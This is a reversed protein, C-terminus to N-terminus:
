PASASCQGDPLIKDDAGVLHRVEKRVPAVINESM